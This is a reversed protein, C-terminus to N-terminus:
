AALVAQYDPIEDVLCQPSTQPVHRPAAFVRPTASGSTRYQEDIDINCLRKSVEFAFPKRRERCVGAPQEDRPAAM